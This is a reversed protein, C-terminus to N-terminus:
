SITTWAVPPEQVVCVAVSELVFFTQKHKKALREAESKAKELTEHKATPVSGNNHWVMWFKAPDRRVPSVVPTLDDDRNIYTWRHRCEPCDFVDANAQVRRVSSNGCNPCTNGM